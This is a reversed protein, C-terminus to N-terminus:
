IRNPVATRAVCRWRGIRWGPHTRQWDALASQGHVICATHSTEEFSFSLREERCTTPNAALCITMLLLMSQRRFHSRPRQDSCRRYALHFAPRPPISSSAAEKSSPNPSVVIHNQPATKPDVLSVISTKAVTAYQTADPPPAAVTSSQLIGQFPRMLRSCPSYTNHQRAVANIMREVPVILAASVTLTRM